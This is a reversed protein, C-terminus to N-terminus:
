ELLALATELETVDYVNDIRDAVVGDSGVLFLSPEFELGLSAVADAVIIDPDTYDMGVSEPNAYVELHVMEVDPFKPAIEILSDLVPGCYATFCLSPTAVLVAMPRGQALIEDASHEHFTCPEPLRTCLLEIGLPDATTATPIAPFPQGPLLVDIDTPDFAQVALTATQDGLDVELDYIGPEPLVTRVAFYRALDSHEHDSDGNGEPHDHSTIRSSATTEELLNGDSFIRVPVAADEGVLVQGNDILGFPLRQPIGAAIVQDSSFLRVIQPALVATEPDSSGCASLGLGGALGFTALGLGGIGTDRLFARRSLPQVM